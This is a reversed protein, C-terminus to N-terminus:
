ASGPLMSRISEYEAERVALGIRQMSCGYFEVNRAIIAGVAYERGTEIKWLIAEANPGDFGCGNLVVQNAMVIIAPGVVTCNEFRVDSLLDGVM